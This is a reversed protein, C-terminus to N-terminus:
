NAPKGQPIRIQNLGSPIFPAPNEDKVQPLGHVLPRVQNVIGPFYLFSGLHAARKPLGSFIRTRRNWEQRNAGSKQHAVAGLM